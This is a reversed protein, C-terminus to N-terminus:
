KPNMLRPRGSPVRPTAHGRIAPSRCWGSSAAPMMMTTAVRSEAVALKELPM